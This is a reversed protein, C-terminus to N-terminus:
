FLWIDLGYYVCSGVLGLGLFLLFGCSVLMVWFGCYRVTLCLCGKLM